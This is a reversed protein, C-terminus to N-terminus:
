IRAEELSFGALDDPSVSIALAAFTLGFRLDGYFDVARLVATGHGLTLRHEVRRQSFLRSPGKGAVPTQEVM